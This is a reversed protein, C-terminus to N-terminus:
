HCPLALPMPLELGQAGAEPPQWTFVFFDAKYMSFITVAQDLHHYLRSPLPLTGAAQHGHHGPAGTTCQHGGPQVSPAGHHEEGDGVAEEAFGVPEEPGEGKEKKGEDWQEEQGGRDVGM